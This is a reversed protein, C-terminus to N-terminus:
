NTYNHIKYFACLDSRKLGIRRVQQNKIEVELFPPRFLCVLAFDWAFCQVGDHSIEGGYRLKQSIHHRRRCCLCHVNGKM